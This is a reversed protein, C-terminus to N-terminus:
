SNANASGNMHSVIVHGALSETPYRHGPRDPRAVMNHGIQSVQLSPPVAAKGTSHCHLASQFRVDRGPVTQDDFKRSPRNENKGARSVQRGRSVASPFGSEREPGCGSTSSPPTQLAPFPQFIFTCPRVPSASRRTLGGCSPGQLHKEPHRSAQPCPPRQHLRVTDQGVEKATTETDFDSVSPFAAAVHCARCLSARLQSFARRNCRHRPSSLNQFCQADLAQKRLDPRDAPLSLSLRGYGFPGRRAQLRDPTGTAVFSKGPKTLSGVPVRRSGASATGAFGHPFSHPAHFDDRAASQRHPPSACRPLFDRRTDSPIPSGCGRRPRAQAPKTTIRRPARAAGQVRGVDPAPSLARRRASRLGRMRCTLSNRRWLM